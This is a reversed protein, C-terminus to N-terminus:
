INKYHIEVGCLIHVYDAAKKLSNLDRTAKFRTVYKVINMIAWDEFMGNEIAYEAPEINTNKYHDSGETKCFEKGAERAQYVTLM